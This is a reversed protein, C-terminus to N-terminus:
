YVLGKVKMWEELLLSTCIAIRSKQVLHDSIQIKLLM